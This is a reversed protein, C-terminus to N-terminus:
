EPIGFLYETVWNRADGIVYMKTGDDKFSLGRPNTAQDYIDFNQEYVATSVDWATSLSYENVDDGTSGVIYMKTGDDKFFLGNPNTEQSAVSFSKALGATSIDWATSLNYQYVTDSSIGSVYMKTGDPKFFLGTPSFDQSGVSFNQVYSATSIDWSTSLNYENVDDGTSGVIYMKTGDPKFFIDQPSIEQSAISFYQTYSATSTEWASSLSYEYVRDNFLGIMYMKTGDPKFFLGQPNQDESTINLGGMVYQQIVDGSFGIIYMVSGDPKFFLGTPSTETVSVNISNYSATSIDWATSLTYEYVADTVSDLVYMKTGDDKFFLDEPVTAQSNVNFSQTFSATSIDWDTSMSYEHVSDSIQGIVYFTTGDPKFFFGNAATEKSAVSFTQEYVATSVSWGTSLTYEDIDDGSNGIVYMKTGDPSFFLGLPSTQESGIWRSTVFTRSNADWSVSLDFENVDDGSSGLVYMKTGDPKFFLTEPAVEWTAISTQKLFVASELNWLLSEPPNYYAYSLDWSFDESGGAAAQLMKKKTAM